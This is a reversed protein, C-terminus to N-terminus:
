NSNPSTISGKLPISKSSPTCKLPQYGGGSGTGDRELEQTQVFFSTNLKRSGRQWATGEGAGRHVRVRESGCTTVFGEKRVNYNIM